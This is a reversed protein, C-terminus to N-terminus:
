SGNGASFTLTPAEAPLWQNLTPAESAWRWQDYKENLYKLISVGKKDARKTIYKKRGDSLQEYDKLVDKSYKLNIM